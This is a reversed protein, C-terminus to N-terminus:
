GWMDKLRQFRPIDLHDMIALNWGVHLIEHSTLASLLILVPSNKDWPAEVTSQLISENCALKYAEQSSDDLLGILKDKSFRDPNKLDEYSFGFVVKGKQIGRVYDRTTDVIHIISERPSDSKRTETDVMRFDLKPKPIRDFVERNIERHSLFDSFWVRLKKDCIESSKFM